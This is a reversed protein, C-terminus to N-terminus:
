LDNLEFTGCVRMCVPDIVSDPGSSHYTVIYVSQFNIMYKM